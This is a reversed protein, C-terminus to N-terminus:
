FQECDLSGRIAACSKFLRSDLKLFSNWYYAECLGKRVQQSLNESSLRQVLEDACMTIEDTGLPEPTGLTEQLDSGSSNMDVCDGFCLKGTIVKKCAKKDFQPEGLDTNFKGIPLSINLGSVQVEFNTKGELLQKKEFPLAVKSVNNEIRVSGASDTFPSITISKEQCGPFRNIKWAGSSVQQVEQSVIQHAGNCGNAAKEFCIEHTWMNLSVGVSGWITSKDNSGNGPILGRKEPIFAGRAHEFREKLDKCQFKCSVDVILGADSIEQGPECMMNNVEAYTALRSNMQAMPNALASLSLLNFLIFRKM